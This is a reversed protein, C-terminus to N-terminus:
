RNPNFLKSKEFIQIREQTNRVKLYENRSYSTKMLLLLWRLSMPLLDFLVLVMPWLLRYSYDAGDGVEM